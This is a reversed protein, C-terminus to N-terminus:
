TSRHGQPTGRRGAVPTGQSFGRHRGRAPLLRDVLPLMSGAAGVRDAIPRRPAPSGCTRRQPHRLKAIGSPQARSPRLRVPPRGASGRIRPLAAAAPAPVPDRNKPVPLITAASTSTQRPVDDVRDRDTLAHGRRHLPHLRSPRPEAAGAHIPGTISPASICATPQLQCRAEDIILGFTSIVFGAAGMGSGTEARPLFPPLKTAFGRFPVCGRARCGPSPSRM